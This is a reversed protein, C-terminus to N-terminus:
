NEMEKRAKRDDYLKLGLQGVSLVFFGAFFILLDMPFAVRDAYKLTLGVVILGFLSPLWREKSGKWLALAIICGLGADIIDRYAM